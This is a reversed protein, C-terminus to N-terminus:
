GKPPQEGDQSEQGKAQLVQGAAHEFSAKGKDRNALAYQVVGVLWSAYPNTQPPFSQAAYSLVSFALGGTFFSGIEEWHLHM